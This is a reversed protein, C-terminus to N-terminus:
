RRPSGTVFVIGVAAKVTIAVKKFFVKIVRFLELVVVTGVM